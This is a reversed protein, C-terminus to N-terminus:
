IKHVKEKNKASLKNKLHEYNLLKSIKSPIEFDFVTTDDDNFIANNKIDIISLKDYISKLKKQIDQNNIHLESNICFEQEKIKVLYKGKHLTIQDNNVSLKFMLGYTPLKFYVNGILSINSLFSFFEPDLSKAICNEALFYHYYFKICKSLYAINFIFSSEDKVKDLNFKIAKKTFSISSKFFPFISDDQLSNNINKSEFQKKNIDEDFIFQYKLRNEESCAVWFLGFNDIDNNEFHYSKSYLDLYNLELDSINNSFYINGITEVKIM